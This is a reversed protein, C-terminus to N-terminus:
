HRVWLFHETKTMKNEEKKGKKWRYNLNMLFLFKTKYNVASGKKTDMNTLVSQYISLLQCSLLHGNSLNKLLWKYALM